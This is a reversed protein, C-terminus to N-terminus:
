LGTLEGLRAWLNIGMPCYEIFTVFAIAFLVGLPVMIKAMRAQEKHKECNM